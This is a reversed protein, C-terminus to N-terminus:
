ANAQVRARNRHAGAKIGLMIVLVTLGSLAIQIGLAQESPGLAMSAALSCISQIIGLGIEGQKAIRACVYGGIFSCLSGAIIGIVYFWSDPEIHQLEAAIQEPTHGGMSALVAYVVSLIVGVCLSGGIDIALGVLLGKIPAPKGPQRARNDVDASPPSYPNRESM